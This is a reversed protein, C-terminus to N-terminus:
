PWAATSCSRYAAPHARDRNGALGGGGRGALGDLVAAAEALQDLPAGTAFAPDAVEFAAVAPVAGAQVAPLPSCSHPAPVPHEGVVPGHARPDADGELWDEQYAPLEQAPLRVHEPGDAKPSVRWPRLIRKKLATIEAQPWSVRSM